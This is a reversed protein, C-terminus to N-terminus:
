LVQRRGYKRTSALTTHATPSLSPPNETGSQGVTFIRNEFRPNIYVDKRIGELATFHWTFHHVTQFGVREAIEKLTYDSYQILLKAQGIRHRQLFELPRM